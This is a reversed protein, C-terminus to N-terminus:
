IKKIRFQYASWMPISVAKRPGKMDRWGINVDYFEIDKGEAWAIKVADLEQRKKTVPCVDGDIYIHAVSGSTELYDIHENLEGVHKEHHFVTGDFNITPSNDKPRKM